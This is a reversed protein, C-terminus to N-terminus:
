LDREAWNSRAPCSTFRFFQVIQQVSYYHRELFRLLYEFFTEFYSLTSKTSKSGSQDKKNKYKYRLEWSICNFLELKFCTIWKMLVGNLVYFFMGRIVQRDPLSGSLVYLVNATSSFNSFAIGTHPWKSNKRFNASINEPDHVIYMKLPLTIFM